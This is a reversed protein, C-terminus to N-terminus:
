LPIAKQHQNEIISERYKIHKLGKRGIKSMYTIFTLCLILLAGHVHKMNSFM